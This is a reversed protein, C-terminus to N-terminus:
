KNLNYIQQVNKFGLVAKNCNKLSWLISNIASLNKINKSFIIIKRTLLLNKLRPDYNSFKSQSNYKGTLFGKVLPMRGYIEFNKKKCVLIVNKLAENTYLNYVTSIKKINYERFNFLQKLSNKKM